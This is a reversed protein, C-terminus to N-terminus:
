VSFYICIHSMSVYVGVNMDVLEDNFCYILAYLPLM